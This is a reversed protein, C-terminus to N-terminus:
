ASPDLPPAERRTQDGLIFRDGHYGNTSNHVPTNYTFYSSSEVTNITTLLCSIDTMPYGMLQAILHFLGSEESERRFALYSPVVHLLMHFLLHVLCSPGEVVSARRFASVM